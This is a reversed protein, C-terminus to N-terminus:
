DHEKRIKDFLSILNQNREDKIKKMEKDIFNKIIKANHTLDNLKKELVEIQYSLDVRKIKADETIEFEEVIANNLHDIEKELFDKNYYQFLRDENKRRSEPDKSHNLKSKELLVDRIKYLSGPTKKEQKFYNTDMKIVSKYLHKKEPSREIIKKAHFLESKLRDIEIKYDWIKRVLFSKIKNLYGLFAWKKLKEDSNIM